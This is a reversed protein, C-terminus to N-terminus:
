DDDDASRSPGEYGRPHQVYLRVMENSIASLV